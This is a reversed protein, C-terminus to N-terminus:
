STVKYGAEDVAERVLADDVPGNSTVTVQGTAVEVRVDTVGPIQNVEETVSAACHGCSMGQVTYVTTTTTAM